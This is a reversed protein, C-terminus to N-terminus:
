TLAVSCAPCKLRTLDALVDGITEDMEDSRIKLPHTVHHRV